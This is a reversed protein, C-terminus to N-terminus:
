NLHRVKFKFIKCNSKIELYVDSAPTKIKNILKSQCRVKRESEWLTPTRIESPKTNGLIIQLSRVEELMTQCDKEAFEKKDKRYIMSLWHAFLMM